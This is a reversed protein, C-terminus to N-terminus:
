AFALALHRVGLAFAFLLGLNAWLDEFRDAPTVALSVSVLTLRSSSTNRNVVIPLALRSLAPGSAATSARFGHESRPIPGGRPRSHDDSLGVLAAFFRSLASGTQSRM